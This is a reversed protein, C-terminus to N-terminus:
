FYAAPSHSYFFVWNGYRINSICHCVNYVHELEYVFVASTRFSEYEGHCQHAFSLLCQTLMSNTFSIRKASNPQTHLERLKRVNTKNSAWVVYAWYFCVYVYVNLSTCVNVCARLGSVVQWIAPECKRMECLCMHSFMSLYMSIRVSVVHLRNTLPFMKERNLVVVITM